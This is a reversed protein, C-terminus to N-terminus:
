PNIVSIQDNFTNTIDLKEFISDNDANSNEFYNLIGLSADSRNQSTLQKGAVMVLAERANNVETGSPKQVQLTLCNGSAVCDNAGGPIYDASFAVYIFQHWKNKIFWGPIDDNNALYYDINAVRISGSSSSTPTFVARGVETTGDVEYDRITILPVGGNGSFTTASIASCNTDYGLCVDRVRKSAQSKAVMNGSFRAHIEHQRSHVYDHYIIYNDTANFYNRTGGYLQTTVTTASVATIVGFAANPSSTTNEITDGVKVGATLFGASSDTIQCTASTTCTGPSTSDVTGSTASAAPIIRYYEGADFDPSTASLRSISVNTNSNVATVVMDKRPAYISYADGPRFEIPVASEGVYPTAELTDADIISSIVGQIKAEGLETELTDNQIVYNYPEYVSFDIGADKLTTGSSGTDATGSIVFTEDDYDHALDGRKVGDTNFQANSDTIQTQSNSSATDRGSISVFDDFGAYCDAVDPVIWNCKGEDLSFSVSDSNVYNNIYAALATIYAAQVGPFNGTDFIIDTSNATINFDINFATPFLKGEDHFSLLGERTNSDTNFRPLYYYDNTDFDNDAGFYLTNLALTSSNTVSSVSTMSGDTLNIVLDGAQVGMVTFDKTADVLNTSNDAGTVRGINSRIVYNNGTSFVNSTGGGLSKATLQTPSVTDIVGKAWTLGSIDSLNEIIDGASIGLEDFDKSTDVLTLGNSGSEATGSFVNNNWNIKVVAYKDGNDFDNDTGLTLGSLSLTNATVGTVTAISGDTINIVLDGNQIDWDTFDTTATLSSSNNSGNHTGTLRRGDAKPDAFATMWPYAGYNSYYDALVARLENVVRQEVVAMLEERTITVLRDNFEGAGSTTFTSADSDANVDELYDIKNISPRGNQDSVPTGPAIIVAVIDSVADVNLLGPIESNIVTNNSLTNKFNNSVAYWLLEGGSERLDGLGLIKYPLRGLTTGTSVACNSSPNGFLPDTLIHNDPCPLFGPGKETTARLEPYNMAYSLLAEKAELLAVQTETDRTNSSYNNLRNVLLYSTGTILVLIFALLVAGSQNRPLNKPNM